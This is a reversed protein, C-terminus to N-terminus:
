AIMHLISSGTLPLITGADESTYAFTPVVAGPTPQEDSGIMAGIISLVILVGFGIGVWKLCGGTKKSPASTPATEVEGVFDDPLDLRVGYPAVEGSQLKFGGAIKARCEVFGNLQRSGIAKRFGLALDRPLYGVPEGEIDVRVANRDKPNNEESILRAVVFVPKDGKKRARCIQELARQYHSEGRVETNYFGGASLLATKPNAM